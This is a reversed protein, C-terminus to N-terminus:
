GVGGTPVRDPLRLARRGKDTPVLRRRTLLGDATIYRYRWLFALALLTDVDGPLSPSLMPDPGASRVLLAAALRLRATSLRTREVLSAIGLVAQRTGATLIEELMAAERMVWLPSSAAMPDVGEETAAEGARPRGHRPDGGEPLRARLPRIWYWNWLFSGALFVATGLVLEAGLDALSTGMVRRRSVFAVALVLLLSAGGGVLIGIVGDRLLHQREEAAEKRFSAAVDDPTAIPAAGAGASRPM